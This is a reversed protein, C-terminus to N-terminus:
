VAHPAARSAHLGALYGFTMGSGLTCGGAWYTNHAPSAICNGAGYLGPIPRDDSRLVEARANIVPGGNTDLTGPALIVCYYPGKEQLPYLLPNTGAVDGWRTGKRPMGFIPRYDLDYAFEGRQFDADRGTRAFANFRAITQELERAFTPALQIGGTHPSLAALRADIAAALEAPTNGSLVYPAGTPQLPLPHNGGYLEAARQDYIMFTLLNPYEAKNADYDHHTRARDHYNRKENFVRRGYKNVVIMSDGPPQWVDNPVSLYQLAEELVIEARWAGGMNGLKAGVGAAIAIFDGTCTPVGCGGFVPGTQYLNLLERNYSYGGTAFIVGRHARVAVAGEDSDAVVGVVEGSANTVLSTVRHSTLVPIGLQDIRAKLQGMLESGFGLTGDAKLAGLGRGRPAKNEAGHEFYDPLDDAESEPLIHFRGVRLAGSSRMLDVMATGHDYYAGILDYVSQSVGLTASAPNYLHPYSYRICYALFDPKADEMGKARMRFNNAIWFMGASKASTGGIVPSKELMMVSAGQSRATLAAVAASAGSGAVVVDAQHRWSVKATGAVADSALVGLATATAGAGGARLFDRRSVRSTSDDLKRM